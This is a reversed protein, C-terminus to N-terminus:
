IINYRNNDSNHVIYSSWIICVAADLFLQIRTYIKQWDIKKDFVGYLNTLLLTQKTTITM